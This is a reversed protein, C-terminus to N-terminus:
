GIEGVVRGAVLFIVFHSVCEFVESQWRATWVTRFAIMFVRGHKTAFAFVYCHHLRPLLRLVHFALMTSMRNSQIVMLIVALILLKGIRLQFLM